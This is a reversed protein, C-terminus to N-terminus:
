VKARDGFIVDMVPTEDVAGYRVLMDCISGCKRELANSMPTRLRYGYHTNPNAGCRLLLEVIEYNGRWCALNLPNWAGNGLNPDAGASLLMRCIEANELEVALLLPTWDGARHANVDAGYEVLLKSTEVHNNCVAKHLPTENEDYGSARVFGRVDVPVGGELLKRCRETDGCEAWFLLSSARRATKGDDSM